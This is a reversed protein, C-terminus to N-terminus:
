APPPRRGSWPMAQELARAARLVTADENRRGVAMVGVPLGGSMGAPVSAAPQACINWVINYPNTGWFPHSPRGDIVQPPSGPAYATTATTPMLLLDYRAMLDDARQRLRDIAALAQSYQAGTIKMGHELSSRMYDSLEGAHQRLLKGHAQYLNASFVAWFAEVHGTVDLTCEEVHAGAGLLARVADRTGKAVGPDIPAYGANEVWWGVRLGRVGDELGKLYDPVADWLSTADGADYGACVQLMLAADRVCGTMPGPGSFQNAATEGYGPGRPMRGNTVKLGFVGCFASPIRISGGGDSGLSMACLGAAQAAGAGGSSGGPTRSTDWPNLCEEAVRSRTTPGTGFEPTNTKGLIIAGARRLRAVAYGDVEPVRDRYVASGMTSRVGATLELDKISIPVGHLPGLEGGRAAAEEARQAAAMAQEGAVTVYAHLRGDAAAIRGLYLETLERPSVKRQAVMEAQKWGPIFALEQDHM